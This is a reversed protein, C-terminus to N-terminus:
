RAAAPATHGCVTLPVAALQTNGRRLHAKAQEEIFGAVLVALGRSALGM